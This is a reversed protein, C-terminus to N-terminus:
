AKAQGTDDTSSAAAELADLTTDLRGPDFV